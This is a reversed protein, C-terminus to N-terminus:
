LSPPMDAMRTRFLHETLWILVFVLVMLLVGAAAASGFNGQRLHSFIDVAVPTNEPTYLLISCPFEGLAGIFTFLFGSAISALILPLVVRTIVRVFTAGLTLAVEVLQYDLTELATVVSRVMYPLHRVFYALPLLSSSGVLTTGLAFASPKSFAAILGIALATGPIALPLLLLVMALPQLLLRRQAALIGAGLGFLLNPVSSLTAMSLSNLFPQYFQADSFLRQYHELSYATPLIRGTKLPADAFSMLILAVIPLVIFLMQASLLLAFPLSLREPPTDRPTGRGRISLHINGQYVEFLFVVAASIMVLGITMASALNFEGAIKQNFIEVTLFRARGGFLLPATFSAVSLVFVILSASFLSPRLLPLLVKWFQSWIGAGLNQAAEVIAYDLRSLTASAFLFFHVYFSYVHVLWVAWLGEFAFPPSSLGFLTQILRAVVGSESYLFQFSFVGVLPPLGLPLLALRSLFPKLPFEFRWFTYAMTVGFLGAGLVSLLALLLTYAFAMLMDTRSFLAAYHRLTFRQEADSFGSHMTELLPNLVYGILVFFIIINLLWLLLRSMCFCTQTLLYVLWTDIYSSPSALRLPCQFSYVLNFYKKVQVFCLM